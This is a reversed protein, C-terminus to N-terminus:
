PAREVTRGDLPITQPRGLRTGPTGTLTIVLDRASRGAPIPIFLAAHEVSQLPMACPAEPGKRPEQTLLVAPAPEGAVPPPLYDIPLRELRPFRSVDGDPPHFTMTVSGGAPITVSGRVPNPSRGVPRWTGPAGRMSEGVLAIPRWCRYHVFDFIDRGVAQVVITRSRLIHVDCQADNVQQWNCSVTGPLVVDRLPPVGPAGTPDFLTREMQSDGILLVQGPPRRPGRDAVVAADADNRTIGLLKGLDGRRQVAPGVHIGATKALGPRIRDFVSRAFLLRGRWNLHSDSKLFVPKGQQELRDFAPQLDLGGPTTALRKQIGETLSAACAQVASPLHPADATHTFYKSGVFLVTTNRGSAVLARALIDASDAAARPDVRPYGSRTCVRTEPVYYLWGRHGLAVLPNTSEHFLDVDIDGSLELADERLPLADLVFRDFQQYTAAHRISSFDIPPQEVKARDEVNPQSAGLMWLTAPLALLGVLWAVPLLRLGSNLRSM